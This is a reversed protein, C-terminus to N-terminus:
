KILRDKSVDIKPYSLLYLANYHTSGTEKESEDNVDEADSNEPSSQM